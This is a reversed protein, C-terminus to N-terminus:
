RRWRAMEQPSTEAVWAIRSVMHQVISRGVSEPSGAARLAQITKAISWVAGEAWGDFWARRWEDVRVTRECSARQIDTM